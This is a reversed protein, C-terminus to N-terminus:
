FCKLVLLKEKRWHAENLYPGSLTLTRTSTPNSAPCSELTFYTSILNPSYSNLLDVTVNTMKNIPGYKFTFIQTGDVEPTCILKAFNLGGFYSSFLIFFDHSRIDFNHILNSIM